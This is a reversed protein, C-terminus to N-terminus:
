RLTTPHTLMTHRPKAYCPRARQRRSAWAPTRVTQISESVNFSNDVDDWPYTFTVDGKTEPVFSLYVQFSVHAYRVFPNHISPTLHLVAETSHKKPPM